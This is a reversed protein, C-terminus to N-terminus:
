EPWRFEQLYLVNNKPIHENNNTDWFIHAYAFPPILPYKINIEEKKKIEPIQIMKPRLDIYFGSDSKVERDATQKETMEADPNDNQEEEENAEPVPALRSAKKAGFFNFIPM